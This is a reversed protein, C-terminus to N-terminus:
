QLLRRRQDKVQEAALAEATARPLGEDYELIATREEFAVQWDEEDWGSRDGPHDFNPIQESPAGEFGEFGMVPSAAIEAFPSSRSGEFGDFGKDPLNQPNQLNTDTAIESKKEDNRLAALWRGM